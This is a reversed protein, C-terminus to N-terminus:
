STSVLQLTFTVNLTCVPSALDLVKEGSIRDAAVVQLTDQHLNGGGDVFSSTYVGPTIQTYHMADWVLGEAEARIESPVNASEFPVETGDPCALSDAGWDFSWMGDIPVGAPVQLPAAATVPEQLLELPLSQVTEEDYPEPDSPVGSVGLDEDLPVNIQMGAVVTRTEGQAQVTATGELVNVTLSGDPQAQVFATADMQIVVEDMWISVSAVGEPTQILMGSNPAEACPADNLGSRFYFAQMPGFEPLADSEASDAVFQSADELETDGFLLIQVDEAEIADLAAEVFMMVVGWRGTPVDMASLRLTQVRNVDVVDGPDFFQFEAPDIDDRPQADLVLHGYCLMNTDTENCRESTLDIATQVIAPCDAQALTRVAVVLLVCLTLLKKM